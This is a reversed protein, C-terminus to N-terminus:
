VPESLSSTPRSHGTAATAGGERRRDLTAPCAVLTVYDRAWGAPPARDIPPLALSRVSCTSSVVVSVVSVATELDGLFQM